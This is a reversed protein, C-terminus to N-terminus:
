LNRKTFKNRVINRCTKSKGNCLKKWSAFDKSACPTMAVQRDRFWTSPGICISDVSPADEVVSEFLETLKSCVNRMEVTKFGYLESMPDSCYATDDVTFSSGDWQLADIPRFMGWAPEWLFWHSNKQLFVQDRFRVVSM